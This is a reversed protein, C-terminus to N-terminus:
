ETEEIELIHNMKKIKARLYKINEANVTPQLPVRGRVDIRAARLAEIKAPNNSLLRISRIGLDGLMRVAAGYEREDAKHGLRVNAEVTDLGEDQFNYARLKDLLGIGRGEQRLYLVVGAGEAAILRLSTQLQQGCDCRMSGFVDGTLCESHVRVLVGDIDKVTGRVLALHEKGDRPSKFMHLQFEGHETPLRTSALLSLESETDIISTM